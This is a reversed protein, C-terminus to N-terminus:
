QKTKNPTEYPMKFTTEFKFVKKDKIMIHPKIKKKSEFTGSKSKMKKPKM